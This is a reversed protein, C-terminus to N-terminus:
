LPLSTNRHSGYVHHRGCHNRDTRITRHLIQCLQHGLAADAPNRDDLVAPEDANDALAIQQM